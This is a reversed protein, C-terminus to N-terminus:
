LAVSSEVAQVNDIPFSPTVAMLWARCVWVVSLLKLIEPLHLAMEM